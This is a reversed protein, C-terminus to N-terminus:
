DNINEEKKKPNRLRELCDECIVAKYRRKAPLAYGFIDFELGKHDKIIVETKDIGCVECRCLDCVEILM